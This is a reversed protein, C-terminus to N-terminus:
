RLRIEQLCKFYSLKYKLNPCYCFNFTDAIIFIINVADEDFSSKDAARRILRRCGCCSTLSSLPPSEENKSLSGSISPLAARLYIYIYTHITKTSYIRMFNDHRIHQSFICFFYNYHKNLKNVINSQRTFTYYICKKIAINQVKTMMFFM